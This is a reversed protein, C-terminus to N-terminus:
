DHAKIIWIEERDMSQMKVVSFNETAEIAVLSADKKNYIGLDTFRMQDFHDITEYGYVEYDM